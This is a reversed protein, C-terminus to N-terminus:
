LTEFANGTLWIGRANRSEGAMSLDWDEDSWIFLDSISDLGPKLEEWLPFTMAPNRSNFAGTRGNPPPQIRVEVLEHPRAVPLPRLRVADLLHFLATNAGIGLGLSVLAVLAFGPARVLLRLGYRFDQWISETRTLTNMRYIEERILTTNGLKRQAAARADAPSMGRAINDDTEIDLYANLERTREDDWHRRRFFRTWSM